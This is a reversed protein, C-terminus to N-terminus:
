KEPQYDADFYRVIEVLSSRLGSTTKRKSGEKALAEIQKCGLYANNFDEILNIILEKKNDSALLLEAKDDLWQKKKDQIQKVQETIDVQLSNSSLDKLDVSLSLTNGSLETM